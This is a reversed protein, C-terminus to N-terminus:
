SSKVQRKSTKISSIKKLFEVEQRLYEVENRLQTVEDDANVPKDTNNPHFAQRPRRGNFFGDGKEAEERIHMRIGNIRTEGLMGPDYGYQCLIEKPTTGSHYANWFLEKFEATFCLQCQTVKFTYPNNRLAEMEEGTFPKISM